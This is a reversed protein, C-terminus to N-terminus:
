VEGGEAALASVVKEPTVPLDTFTVGLAHSMANVVAAATPVTAIEGVSKASYPGDDGDHEVFLVKVDPMDPANVVHYNKFGGPAPRGRDDIRVEECLAYGIGMQVGGHYQGRALVPNLARGIDAVVLFDTVRTLGTACDVVVEAFQACYSGPNSTATHTHHAYIDEGRELKTRM